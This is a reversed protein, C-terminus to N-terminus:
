TKTWQKKEEDEPQQQAQYPVGHYIQQNTPKMRHKYYCYVGLAILAAVGLVGGVVGGIIKNQRDTDNNPNDPSVTDGQHKQSTDDKGKPLVKLTLTCPLHGAVSCYYTGSHSTTVRLSLSLNGSSLEEKFLSTRDKYDDSQKHLQDEGQFFLHVTENGIAPDEFSWEVEEYSIDMKNKTSCLLTVTDGDKGEIATNPCQLRNPKFPDHHHTNEEPHVSDGCVEVLGIFLLIVLGTM